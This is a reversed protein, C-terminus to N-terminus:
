GLRLLRHIINRSNRLALAPHLGNSLQHDILLQLFDIIEILQFHDFLALHMLDLLFLHMRIDEVSEKGFNVKGIECFIVLIGNQNFAFFLM